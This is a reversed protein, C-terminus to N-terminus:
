RNRDTLTGGGNPDCKSRHDAKRFTEDRPVSRSAPCLASRGHAPGGPSARLYDKVGVCVHRLWATIPRNGERIGSVGEVLFRDQAAGRLVRAIDGRDVIRAFTGPRRRGNYTGVPRKVGKLGISLLPQEQRVEIEGGGGAKQGRAEPGGRHLSERFNWM